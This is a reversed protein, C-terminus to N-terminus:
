KDGLYNAEREFWIDYYGKTNVLGHKTRWKRHQYRIASPIAVIFPMLLGYKCNQLAHGFEHNLLAANKTNETVIVIGLTVGGWNEGINFM